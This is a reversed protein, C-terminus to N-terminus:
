QAAEFLSLVDAQPDTLTLTIIRTMFEELPQAEFVAAARSNGQGLGGANSYPRPRCDARNREQSSSILRARICDRRTNWAFM